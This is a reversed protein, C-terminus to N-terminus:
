YSQGNKYYKQIHEIEDNFKIDALYVYSSEGSREIIFISKSEM